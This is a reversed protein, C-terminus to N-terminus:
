CPRMQRRERTAASSSALYTCMLQFQYSNVTYLRRSYRHLADEYSYDSQESLGVHDEYDSGSEDVSVDSDSDLDM